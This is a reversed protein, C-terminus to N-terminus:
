HFIIHMTPYFRMPPSEVHIQLKFAFQKLCHCCFNSVLIPPVAPVISRTNRVYPTAKKWSDRDCLRTSANSMDRSHVKLVLGRCVNSVYCGRTGATQVESSEVANLRIGKFRCTEVVGIPKTRNGGVATTRPNLAQLCIKPLNLLWTQVAAKTSM